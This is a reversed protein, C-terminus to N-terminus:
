ALAYCAMCEQSLLAPRGHKVDLDFDRFSPDLDSEM